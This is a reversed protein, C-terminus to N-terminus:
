KANHVEEIIDQMEKKELPMFSESTFIVEGSKDLLANIPCLQQGIENL